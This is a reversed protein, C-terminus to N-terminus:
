GGRRLDKISAVGRVPRLRIVGRAREHEAAVAGVLLVTSRDPQGIMRALRRADIAVQASDAAKPNLTRLLEVALAGALSRHHTVPMVEVSGDPLRGAAIRARAELMLSRRLGRAERGLAALSADVDPVLARLRSLVTAGLRAELGASPAPPPRSIDIELSRGLSMAEATSLALLPRVVAGALKPALGRVGGIGEARCLEALVRRADDDRTHGVAVRQFGQEAALARLERLLVVRRGQTPRVAYFSLGLQRAARGVDAVSEAADSLEGDIEISGVAIEALGLAETACSLFGLLGVSAAGGGLGVLVRDGRSFLKNRRCFALARAYPERRRGGRESM